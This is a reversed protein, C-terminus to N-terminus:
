DAINQLWLPFRNRVKLFRELAERSDIYAERKEEGDKMAEALLWNVLGLLYLMELDEDNEEECSELIELAEDYSECEIFLRAINM